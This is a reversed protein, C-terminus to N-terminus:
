LIYDDTVDEHTSVSSVVTYVANRKDKSEGDIMTMKAQNRRRLPNWRCFLEVNLCIRGKVYSKIVIVSSAILVFLLCIAVSIEIYGPGQHHSTLSALSTTNTFCPACRNEEFHDCGINM